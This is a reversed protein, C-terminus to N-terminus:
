LPPRQHGCFDVTLLNRGFDLGVKGLSHVLELRLADLRPQARQQHALVGPRHLVHGALM